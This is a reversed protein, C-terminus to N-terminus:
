TPAPATRSRGAVRRRVRASALRELDAVDQPTLGLAFMAELVHDITYGSSPCYDIAQDRWDGAKAQAEAHIEAPTLDTITQALHGCNCAGMHTWAYRTPGKLRAATTRLVDILEPTATAM